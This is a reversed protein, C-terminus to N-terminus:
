RRPDRVVLEVNRDEDAGRADPHGDEGNSADPDNFSLERSISALQAPNSSVGSGPDPGAAHDLLTGWLSLTGDRNDVLDLVRSQEPWDIHAATVVQWFGGATRGAPDGTVGSRPVARIRNQHEHGVVFGVVTQHRLLLCKLTEDPAGPAGAPCPQEPSAEGFHVNEYPPPPNDGPPFPSPQTQNMTELSHHAFVLTLEDRADAAALERDLWRFQTEDINGGDGGADAVSDLVVFRVGRRPSFAYYGQGVELSRATFGHGLPRGSTVFHQAMYERKFLLHRRPDSPVIEALGPTDAPDAAVRARAQEVLAAAADPDTAALRIAELEAPPLGTVKVCGQAIADLAANRNQNGQVLGDHNGFIGYWPLDGFGVPDFPENMREFLGPFDRVSSSRQAEAMNEAEDPSYGPGDEGNSSDPEYYEGDGRVGDYRRGDSPECSGEVGSDPDVAAGAPRLGPPVCSLKGGSGNAAGDLIDVLWRVENCQTNDTDDGTTMALAVRRGTVPSVAGRMELVMQDVVQTSMGEQARYASTFPPGVKDLFEVRAPSEEDVIHLDTLQGFTLLPTRGRAGRKTGLEDRTLYPDGAAYELRNDGNTDDITGDATSSGAAVAVGTGTAAVALAVAAIRGRRWM